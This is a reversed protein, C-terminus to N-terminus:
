RRLDELIKRVKPTDVHKPYSKIIDELVEVAKAKKDRKILDLAVSLRAQIFRRDIEDDSLPEEPKKSPTGEEASGPVQHAGPPDPSLFSELERLLERASRSGAIRALPKQEPHDMASDLVVITPARQVDYEAALAAGKRYEAKAFLIRGLAEKMLPDMLAQSVSVSAPSDDFFYIAFPRANKKALRRLGSIDEAFRPTEPGAAAGPFKAAVRLIQKLVAAPADSELQEVPKGSPDCFYVTPYGQIRYREQLDANKKGWDCDVFICAIKESAQIM